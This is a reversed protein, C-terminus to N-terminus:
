QQSFHRARTNEVDTYLLTLERQELPMETVRVDLLTPQSSALSTALAEPLAENSAVIAGGLGMARGVAAYDIDGLDANITRGILSPQMVLENGWSRNNSVIITIPLKEVVATAIESPYFGFSGDGTVLVVRRPPRNEAAAFDREAVAAGIAMPTGMGMSGLPYTDAYSGAAAFRLVAFMRTLIVAGDNILITRPGLRQRLETGIRYPNVAPTSHAAKDDFMRIRAGLAERLWGPDRRPLGKAELASHLQEIALGVDALMPVEMPRNRSLDEACVDIQIMSAKPAFRPALGYGLRRTPRAGAWVVLDAQDAATQAVPWPWGLEDDEPVLGRAMANMLIPTGFCSAFRRLARGADSWYAGTGAIIIPRTARVFLDAAAAVADPEPAPRVIAFGQRGSAVGPVVHQTLLDKPYAVVCPGPRGALATRCAIEVYEALRQASHCTRVWKAIPRLLALADHDIPLEPEIWSHPERGVLVVIPTCAEFASQMGTVANAMGQDANIIAVGIGRRMRAYGDAAGVTATEHRTQIVRIGHRDVENLLVSQSAGALAFVSRVGYRQLVARVAEAATTGTSM